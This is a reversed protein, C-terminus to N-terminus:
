DRSRRRFATPTEGRWRRFTRSFNSPEAYGLDAAIQDITDATHTLRWCAVETRAEDLLQQYRLGKDRLRRILTRPSVALSRAVADLNPYDETVQSLRSRVFSAVDDHAAAEVEDAERRWARTAAERARPDAAVSKLGLQSRPVRICLADAGFVVQGPLRQVYRDAWSPALYPFHFRLGEIRQGVTAELMRSVLAVNSELIFHRLDGLDFDPSLTLDGFESGVIFHFSVVRGSGGGIDSLTALAEGLSDSASVAVGLPGHVTIPSMDGMELGVGDAAAGVLAKALRYLVEIPLTQSSTAEIESPTIGTGAVVEDVDVNARRAAMLMLRLYGRRIRRESWGPPIHSITM